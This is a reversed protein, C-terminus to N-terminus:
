KRISFKSSFIMNEMEERTVVSNFNLTMGFDYGNLHRSYVHQNLIVETRDPNYIKVMFVKFSLGDILASDEKYTANIDKNAYTEKIIDYIKKNNDDYSGFEKEDYPEITSLFTNFKDKRLNLLQILGSADIEGNITKELEKKGRETSKKTAERSEVEWGAPIDVAWGIEEATYRNATDLRGTELEKQKDKITQPKNKGKCSFLLLMISIAFIYKM